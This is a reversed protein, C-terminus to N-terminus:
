INQSVLHALANLIAVNRQYPMRKPGVVVLMIREGHSTTTTRILVSTHRAHMVPNEQGIYVRLQEAEAESQYLHGLSRNITDVVKSIEQLTEQDFTAAQQLLETMGAEHIERSDISSSISIAQVLHALLKATAQIRHHYTHEYAQLRDTLRREQSSSLPRISTHDVYYRYGRDTPVRGASTHPQYILQHEELRRLEHRVTASSISEALLVSLRASSVPYATDIYEKVLTELLSYQRATIM